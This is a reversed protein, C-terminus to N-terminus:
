GRRMSRQVLDLTALIGSPGALEVDDFGVGLHLHALCHGAEHIATIRRQQDAFNNKTAGM